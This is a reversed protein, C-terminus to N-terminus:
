FSGFILDEILRLYVLNEEERSLGSLNLQKYHASRYIPLPPIIFTEAPIGIVQGTNGINFDQKRLWNMDFDFYIDTADTIGKERLAKAFYPNDLNFMILTDGMRGSSIIKKMNYSNILDYLSIKKSQFFYINFALHKSMGHQAMIDGQNVFLGGSQAYEFDLGGNLNFHYGITQTNFKAKIKDELGKAIEKLYSEKVQKTGLSKLYDREQTISLQLKALSKPIRTTQISFLHLADEKLKQYSVHPIDVLELIEVNRIQSAKIKKIKGAVEIEVIELNHGIIVGELESGKVNLRVKQGRKLKISNNIVSDPICSHLKSSSKGTLYDCVCSWLGAKAQYSLTSLTFLNLFIAIKM